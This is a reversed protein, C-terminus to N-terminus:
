IKDPEEKYKLLIMNYNLDKIKNIFNNFKNKFNNDILVDDELILILKDGSIETDNIVNKWIKIHSLICGIQGNNLNNNIDLYKNISDKYKNIHNGDYASFREFKIGHNDLQKKVSKLRDKRRDLNIM